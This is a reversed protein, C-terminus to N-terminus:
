VHHCIGKDSASMTCYYNGRLYIGINDRPSAKLGYAKTTINLMYASRQFLSKIKNRKSYCEECYCATLFDIIAFVM